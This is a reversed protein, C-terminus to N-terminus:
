KGGNRKVEPKKQQSDGAKKEEYQEEKEKRPRPTVTSVEAKLTLERFVKDLNVLLEKVQDEAPEDSYVVANYNKSALVKLITSNIDNLSNRTEKLTENM